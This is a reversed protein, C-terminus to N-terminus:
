QNIISLHVTSRKSEQSARSRRPRRARWTPSCHWRWCRPSLVEVDHNRRRMRRSRSMRMLLVMLTVVLGFCTRFRGSLKKESWSGSSSSRSTGQLSIPLSFSFCLHLYKIIQLLLLLLSPFIKVYKSINLAVLLSYRSRGFGTWWTWIEFWAPTGARMQIIKRKLSSAFVMNWLSGRATGVM